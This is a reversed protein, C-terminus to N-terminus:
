GGDSKHSKSIVLSYVLPVIVIAGVGVCLLVISWVDPTLGAAIICTGSAIMVKGGLRQTRYWVTEDKMTQPTRFGIFRNQKFKPVFNGLLIIGTGVALSVILKVNLALGLSYSITVAEALLLMLFFIVQLITSERAAQQQKKQKSHAPLWTFVFVCFGLVLPIVFLFIKHLSQDPQGSVDWHTVIKEPLFPYSIGAMLLGVIPFVWYIKNVFRNPKKM